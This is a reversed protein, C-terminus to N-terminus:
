TQKTTSMAILVHISNIIPNLPTAIPVCRGNGRIRVQIFESINSTMILPQLLGLLLQIVPHVITRSIPLQM